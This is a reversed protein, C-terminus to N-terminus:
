SREEEKQLYKLIFSGHHATGVRMRVALYPVRGSLGQSSPAVAEKSGGPDAPQLLQWWCPATPSRVLVAVAPANLAADNLGKGAKLPNILASGDLSCIHHKPGTQDVM